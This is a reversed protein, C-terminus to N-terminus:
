WTTALAAQKLAPGYRTSLTATSPMPTRVLLGGHPAMRPKPATCTHKAWSAWISLSASAHPISGTSSRSRLARPWPSRSSVPWRM